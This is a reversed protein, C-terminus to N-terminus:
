KKEGGRGKLDPAKNKTDNFVMQLPVFVREPRFYHDEMQRELLTFAVEGLKKYSVPIHCPHVAEEDSFPIIFPQWDKCEEVFRLAGKSAPSSAIIIADPRKKKPMLYFEKLARYGEEESYEKEKVMDEKYAIDNEKLFEKYGSIDFYASRLIGGETTPGTVLGIKKYGLGLLKNGTEKITEKHDFMVTSVETDPYNNSVVVCPIREKQFFLIDSLPIPSLIFLGDIKRRNVLYFLSSHHNQSISKNRTTYLHLHYNKDKAKEEIGKVIESIFPLCPDFIDFFIVGLEKTQRESFHVVISGKGVKREILGEEELENLVKRATTIGVNFNSILERESLYNIKGPSHLIQEKLIDKVRRYLPNKGKLNIDEM